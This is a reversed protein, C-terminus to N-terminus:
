KWSFIYIESFPRMKKFLTRFLAWGFPAISMVLSINRDSVYNSKTLMVHKWFFIYNINQVTNRTRDYMYSCTIIPHTKVHQYTKIHNALRSESSAEIMNWISLLRDQSFFSPDLLFVPLSFLSHLCSVHKGKKGFFCALLEMVDKSKGARKAESDDDPLM